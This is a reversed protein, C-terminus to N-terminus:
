SFLSKQSGFAIKEFIQKSNISTPKEKEQRVLKSTM